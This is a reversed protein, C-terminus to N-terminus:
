DPYPLSIPTRPQRTFLNTRAWSAAPIENSGSAIPESGLWDGGKVTYASIIELGQSSLLEKGDVAV